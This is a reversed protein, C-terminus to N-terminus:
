PLPVMLRAHLASYAAGGYIGGGAVGSNAIGWRVLQGANLQITTMAVATTKNTGPNVSQVSGVAWASAGDGILLQTQSAGVQGWAILGTAILNYFGKRPVTIGNASVVVGGSAGIPGCNTFWMTAGAGPGTDGISCAGWCFSNDLWQALSQIANDGDMVRDTGLPYPLGQTTTAPM